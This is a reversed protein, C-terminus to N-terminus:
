GDLAAYRGPRRDVQTAKIQRTTKMERFVRNKFNVKKDVIFNVSQILKLKCIHHSTGVAASTKAQGKHQDKAKTMCAM